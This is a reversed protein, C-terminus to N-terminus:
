DENPKSKTLYKQKNQLFDVDTEHSSYIDVLESREDTRKEENPELLEVIGWVYGDDLSLREGTEVAKRHESFPGMARYLGRLPHSVVLAWM